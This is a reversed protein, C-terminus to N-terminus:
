APEEDEVPAMAAAAAAEARMAMRKSRAEHAVEGAYGGALGIVVAAATALAIAGVTFPSSFGLMVLLMDVAIVLLAALAPEIITVSPSHYGVFFAAVFFSALFGILVGTSSLDLVVQLVFVTYVSLM